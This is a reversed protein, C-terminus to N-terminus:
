ENQLDKAITFYFTSGTGEESEVWIDGNHRQLIKKAIALGMGIGPYDRDRVARRLPKFTKEVQKPKIGIGNDAVSFLWNNDKEEVTIHIDPQNGETQYTLANQLVHYFVQTIQKKDMPFAPLNSVNVQATTAEILDSLEAEVERVVENSDVEAFPEVKTNLRSLGLLAAVITKGSETGSVIRDLHRNTKDDFNDAHNKAIISAFGEIARLPGSLDHSVIYAFEQYEAEVAELKQQTEELQKGLSKKM